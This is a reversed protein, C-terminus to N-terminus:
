SSSHTLYCLIAGAGCLNDGQFNKPDSTGEKMCMRLHQVVLYTFNWWYRYLLMQAKIIIVFISLFVEMIGIYRRLFTQKRTTYYFMIIAFYTHM